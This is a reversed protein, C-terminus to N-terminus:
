ANRIKVTALLAMLFYDVLIGPFRNPANPRFSSTKGTRSPNFNGKEIAFVSGDNIAAL